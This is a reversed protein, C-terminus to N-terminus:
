REGNTSPSVFCDECVFGEGHRKARIRFEDEGCRSCRVMQGLPVHDKMQERVDKRARALAEQSTGYTGVIYKLQADTGAQNILAAEEAKLGSVREALFGDDIRLDKALQVLAQTDKLANAQKVEAIGM